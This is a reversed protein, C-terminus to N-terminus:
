RDIKGNITLVPTEDSNPVFVVVEAEGQTNMYRKGEPTQEVTAPTGRLWTTRNQKDYINMQTQQNQTFIRVANRRGEFSVLTIEAPSTHEASSTTFRTFRLPANVGESYVMLYPGELSIRRANQLAHFYRTEQDMVAPTCMMRTSAIASVTFRMSTSAAGTAEHQVGARYRNCGGRGSIRDTGDFRLTTQINDVVGTGSLDELLWETDTLQHSSSNTMEGNGQAILKPQFLAAAQSVSLCSLGAIGFSVGAFLAILKKM